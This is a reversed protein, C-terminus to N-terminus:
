PIKESLLNVSKKSQKHNASKEAKYTHVHDRSETRKSQPMGLFHEVDEHSKSDIITKDLTSLFFLLCTSDACQVIIHELQRNTDSRRLLKRCLDAKKDWGHPEKMKHWRQM